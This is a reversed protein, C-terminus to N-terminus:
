RVSGPCRPSGREVSCEGVIRRMGCISAFFVLFFRELPLLCSVACFHLCQAGLVLASLVNRLASTELTASPSSHQATQGM